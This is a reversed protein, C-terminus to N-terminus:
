SIHELLFIAAVVLILIAIAREITMGVPYWRRPPMMGFRRAERRYVRVLRARQWRNM